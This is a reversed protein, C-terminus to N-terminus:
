PFLWNHIKENARKLSQPTKVTDKNFPVCADSDYFEKLAIARLPMDPHTRNSDFSYDPTKVLEYGQKLFVEWGSKYINGARGSALYMLSTISAYFDQQFLLGFRDASLEELQYCKNKIYCPSQNASENKSFEGLLKEPPTHNLNSLNQANRVANGFHGLVYHGIEHGLIFFIESFDSLTKTLGGALAILIKGEAALSVHANEYNGNINYITINNHPIITEPLKSLKQFIENSSRPYIRVGERMLKKRENTLDKSMGKELSKYASLCELDARAAQEEPLRISDNDILDKLVTYNNM